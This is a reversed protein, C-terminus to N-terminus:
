RRRSSPGTPAPGETTPRDPVGRSAAQRPIGTSLCTLHQLHIVDPRWEDLFGAAVHAIAPNAYSSEYSECSHFTNNVSVVNVAGDTWTRVSLDRAHDDCHRTFVAVADDGHAALAAALDRVYAETGGNADPPFGHVVQLIRM